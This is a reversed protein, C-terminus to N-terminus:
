RLDHVKGRRQVPLPVKGHRLDRQPRPVGQVKQVSPIIQGHLQGQVCSERPIPVHPRIGQLGYRPDHVPDTAATTLDTIIEQVPSVPQVRLTPAPVHVAPKRDEPQALVAIYETEPVSASSAEGMVQAHVQHVPPKHPLIGARITGIITGITMGILIIGGGTVQDGIVTGHTMGVPIGHIMGAM